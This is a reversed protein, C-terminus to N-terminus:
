KHKKKESILAGSGTRINKEEDESSSLVSTGLSFLDGDRFLFGFPDGFLTPFFTFLNIVNSELYHIIIKHKLYGREIIKKTEPVFSFSSLFILSLFKCFQLLAYPMRGIQSAPLKRKRNMIKLAGLSKEKM